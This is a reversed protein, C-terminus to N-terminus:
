SPRLQPPAHRYRNPHTQRRRRSTPRSPRRSRTQTQRLHQQPPTPLHLGHRHRKQPLNQQPRTPQPSQRPIPKSACPRLPQQHQNPTRHRPSRNPRSRKGPSHIQQIPLNPQRRHTPPPPLTTRILCRANPMTQPRQHPAPMAHRPKTQPAYTTRKSHTALPHSPIQDISTIVLNAIGGGRPTKRLLYMENPSVPIKRYSISKIPNVPIAIKEPPTTSSPHLPGFQSRAIM